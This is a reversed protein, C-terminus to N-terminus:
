PIASSRSSVPILLPYHPRPHSWEPCSVEGEKLSEFGSTLDGGFQLLYGVLRRCLKKSKSVPERCERFRARPGPPSLEDALGGIGLKVVLGKSFKRGVKKVLRAVVGGIM